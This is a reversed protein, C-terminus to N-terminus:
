AVIFHMKDCRTNKLTNKRICYINCHFRSFLDQHVWYFNGFRGQLWEFVFFSLLFMEVVNEVTWLSLASKQLLPNKPLLFVSLTLRHVVVTPSIWDKIETRVTLRNVRFRNLVRLRLSTIIVESSMGIVGFCSVCRVWRQVNWLAGSTLSEFLPWRLWSSCRALEWQERLVRFCVLHFVCTIERAIRHLKACEWPSSRTWGHPFLLRREAVTSNVDRTSPNPASATLISELNLARAFPPINPFDSHLFLAFAKSPTLKEQFGQQSEWERLSESSPSRM